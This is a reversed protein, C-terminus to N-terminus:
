KRGIEDCLFPNTLGKSVLEVAVYKGVHHSRASLGTHVIHHRKSQMMEESGLMMVTGFSVPNFNFMWQLPARYGIMLSGCVADTEVAGGLSRIGNRLITLRISAEIVVKGRAGIFIQQPKM